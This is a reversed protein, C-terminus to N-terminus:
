LFKSSIELWRFWGEVLGDNGAQGPIELGGVVGGYVVVAAGHAAAWLQIYIVGKVMGRAHYDARIRVAGLAHTELDAKTAPLRASPVDARPVVGADAGVM